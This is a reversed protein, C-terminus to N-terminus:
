NAGRKNDDKLTNYIRNKQHGVYSSWRDFSTLNTELTPEEGTVRRREFPTWPLVLNDSVSVVCSPKRQENQINFHSYAPFASHILILEFEELRKLSCSCLFKRLQPVKVGM